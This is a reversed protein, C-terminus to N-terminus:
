PAPLVDGAVRDLLEPREFVDIEFHAASLDDTDDPSVPGAFGSKELYERADGIRGVAADLHVSSVPRSFTKRLPAIRPM